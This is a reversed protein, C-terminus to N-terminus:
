LGPFVDPDPGYRRGQDLEDIGEMEEQSLEFDFIAANAELRDRHVSKPITCVGHQLDWRLSVQVPTKEHRHGIEVLEPLELVKGRMIPSWAQPRIEKELCFRVLDPQVLHPHFEIQNVMPVVECKALLEELHHVMFNSVGIAGVRKEAYLKELARWTEASIGPVPWHVLYLDVYDLGLRKLSAEFADLTAQYGQDSNWVKTTLVLEERPLGCERLAKGVNAENGYVSATDINRYGVEVADRVAREIEQGTGRYTGLGLWPLEVGNHLRVTAEIPDM